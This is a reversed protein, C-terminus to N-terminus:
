SVKKDKAFNTKPSKLRTKFPKHWLLQLRTSPPLAELLNHELAVQQSATLPQALIVMIEVIHDVYHLVYSYHQQQYRQLIPTLLADIEPRQPLNSGMSREEDYPDVHILIDHAAFAAQIHREATLAIYHGETVSIRPDVEIHADIVAYSGTRRSRLNHISRIGPVAALIAKIADMEKPPLAHDTLDAFGSKAMQFGAKFIMASVLLAAIPDLFPYGALNGVIGCIVVLSAAADSRAHWANIELLASHTRKAIARIYRFLAEKTVLSLLTVVLAFQHVVPITTLVTLKTIASVLIGLGVVSLLLGFILSAANEFRAHGYPHEADAAEHSKRNVFLIALDAALDSLTHIGDAVLASSHAFYGTVVQAISLLTNTGASLLTVSKTIKKTSAADNLM